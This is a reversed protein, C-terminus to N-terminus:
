KRTKHLLVDKFSRGEAVAFRFWFYGSVGWGIVLSFAGCYAADVYYGLAALGGALFFTSWGVVGTALAYKLYHKGLSSKTKM